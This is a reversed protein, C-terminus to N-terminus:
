SQRPSTSSMQGRVSAPRMDLWVRDIYALCTPKPGSVSLVQWGKPVSRGTPWISYQDEDNIVVTYTVGDDEYEDNAPM